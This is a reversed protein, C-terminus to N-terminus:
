GGVEIIDKFGIKLGVVSKIISWVVEVGFSAESQM